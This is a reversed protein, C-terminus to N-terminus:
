KGTMWLQINHRTNTFHWYSMCLPSLVSLQGKCAVRSMGALERCKARRCSSLWGVLTRRHVQCLKLHSVQAAPEAVASGYGLAHWTHSAKNTHSEHELPQTDINPSMCMIQVAQAFMFSLAWHVCNLCNTLATAWVVLWALATCVFDDPEERLRHFPAQQM